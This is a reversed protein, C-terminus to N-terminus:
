EVAVRDLRTGGIVVTVEGGREILGQENVFILPYAHGAEPPGGHAHDMLLTDIVEGSEDDVLTPPVHHVHQAKAADVVEYRLDVLGGGGTVAVRIVRVGTQEQFISQADATSSHGADDASSPGIIVWAMAVVVVVAAFVAAVTPRLWGVSSAPRTM